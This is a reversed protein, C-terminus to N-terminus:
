CLGASYKFRNIERGYGLLQFLILHTTQVQKLIKLAIAEANELTINKVKKSSFQSMGVAEDEVMMSSENEQLVIEDQLTTQAGESGAGIAKAHYRTLTGSPDCHWLSARGDDDVGAILLAVGFPRSKSKFYSNFLYIISVYFYWSKNKEM